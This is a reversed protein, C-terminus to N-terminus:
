CNIFYPYNFYLIGEFIMFVNFSQLLSENKFCLVEIFYPAESCQSHDACYCFCPLLWSLPWKTEDWNAPFTTSPWCPPILVTIACPQFLSCYSEATCLTLFFLLVAEIEVCLFYRWCYNKIRGQIKPFNQWSKVNLPLVSLKASAIRSCSLSASNYETDHSFSPYLFTYNLLLILFATIKLPFWHAAYFFLPLKQRNNLFRLNKLYVCIDSDCTLLYM